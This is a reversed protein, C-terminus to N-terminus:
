DDKTECFFLDFLMLRVDAKRKEERDKEPTLTLLSGVAKRSKLAVASPLIFKQINKASPPYSRSPASAGKIQAVAQPGQIRNFGDLFM